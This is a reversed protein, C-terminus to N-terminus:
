NADTAHGGVTALDPKHAVVKRLLDKGDGSQAVVGFGSDTLLRTLGERLLLPDEALAIRMPDHRNDLLSQRFEAARDHTPLRM